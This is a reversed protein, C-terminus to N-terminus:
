SQDWTYETYGQWLELFTSGGNRFFPPNVKFLKQEFVALYQPYSCLLEKRSSKFCKLRYKTLIQM